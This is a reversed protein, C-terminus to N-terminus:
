KATMKHAEWTTSYTFFGAALAPSTLSTLKIGPNPLNETFLWPFGTWYEQRPFEMSLPAQRAVTWLTVCLQVRSIHSLMCCVCKVSVMIKIKRSKGRGDNKNFIDDLQKRLFFLYILGRFDSFTKISNGCKISM